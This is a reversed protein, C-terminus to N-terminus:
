YVFTLGKDKKWLLIFSIPKKTGSTILISSVPKKSGSTIVTNQFHYFILKFFYTYIFTAKYLYKLFADSTIKLIAYSAALMCNCSNWQQM